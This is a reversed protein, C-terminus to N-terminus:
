AADEIDASLVPGLGMATRQEAIVDDIIQDLSTRPRFGITKELKSVDPVRRQMDEFGFGYVEGYPKKVIKSRSGARQKIREALQLITVEEDNGVNFVEGIADPSNLLRTLSEVVDFVHAFCRSQDGTGHVTIPDGRLAQSVFNPLVMGYHGTQRPGTTNFLRVVIVNLRKEYSYSLALCEDLMKAVAYSWRLNATSGLLVDDTESFPTKATKGYVESTSAIIVLKNGVAAAHLVNETGSVNTHISLSPKELITKVGVAAALHIVADCREVLEQVLATDRVSGIVIELNRHDKVAELNSLAGTSLNDLVIVGHMQSLLRETVHSGIFGAGGTVLIRM